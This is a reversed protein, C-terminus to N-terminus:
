MFYGIFAGVYYKLIIIVAFCYCIVIVFTCNSLYNEVGTMTMLFIFLGAIM